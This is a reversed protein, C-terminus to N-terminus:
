ILRRFGRSAWYLLNIIGILSRSLVLVSWLVHDPGVGFVVSFIDSSGAV